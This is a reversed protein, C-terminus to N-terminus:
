KKKKKANTSGKYNTRQPSMGIFVYDEWFTLPSVKYLKALKLLEEQTILKQGYEYQTLDGASIDVKKAVYSLAFGLRYRHERLRKMLSETGGTIYNAM